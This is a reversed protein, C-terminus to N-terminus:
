SCPKPDEKLLDLIESANNVTKPIDEFKAWQKTKKFDSLASGRSRGTLELILEFFDLQMM